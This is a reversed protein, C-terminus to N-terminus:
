LGDAEPELLLVALGGRPTKDRPVVVDLAALQQASVRRQGGGGYLDTLSFFPTSAFGLDALPVAATLHADAATDANAFVLVAKIGAIFRAYPVASYEAAEPPPTVPVRAIATSCRDRHLVDAHARAIAFMASADALMAAKSANGLQAWQRQTGYLWGGPGGGGYLNKTLDPLGVVPDEDFEEGSMFLPIQFGFVGAYGLWARSGRLTFYNGPGSEWGSDHCSFQLTEFCPSPAFQAVLDRWAAPSFTTDHQMFHYRRTEGFVAIPHGAAAGARAAADFGALEGDSDAIDLRFGDVNYRLVWEVWVSSWFATFNANSYDFDTMGWSSGFFWDPHEAILASDNCIGHTTVDLFVRMGSAHAAAVFAAFDQPSGLSPDLTRVDKTAYTTWIGYFHTEALASGAVWLGTVGLGSLHPLRETLSAWTGSGSGDGAGAPSTYARPNLEYISLNRVWAPPPTAPGPWPAAGRVWSADNSWAIHACSDSVSGTLLAASNSFNM